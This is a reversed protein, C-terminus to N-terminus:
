LWLKLSGSETEILLARRGDETIKKSGLLKPIGPQRLLGQTQDVQRLYLKQADNVDRERCDKNMRDKNGFSDFIVFPRLGKIWSSHDIGCLKYIQQMTPEEAM